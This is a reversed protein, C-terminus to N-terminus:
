NYYNQRFVSAADIDSQTYSKRGLQDMAGAMTMLADASHSNEDHSPEDIIVGASNKKKRYGDLRQLGAKCLTADFKLRNFLMKTSDIAQKKHQVRPIKIFDVGFKAAMQQITLGTGKSASTVDHPAFHKGYIYPKDRMAKIDVEISCLTSEYYDIVRIGDLDMQFFWISTYDTYGLDCATHVPLQKNHAYSGIRKEHRALSMEKGFIQLESSALFAEESTSPYEQFMKDHLSQKKKIYWTKQYGSLSIGHNHQLKEFYAAIEDNVHVDVDMSYSPEKWWPYFFFKYDFPTYPLGDQQYAEWQKSMDYFTGAPGKATSEIFIFGDKPVSEIAGTIIEECKDPSDVSIPGFESIHLKNITDGRMSLGVRMGSGNEFEIESATMRKLPNIAKVEDPLNEYMLKIKKFKKEVEIWTQDIIGNSTNPNWFIDDFLLAEILTSFGLQRCKLIINRYWVNNLLDQQAWNPKFTVLKSSKDVIKYLTQLRLDRNAALRGLTIDDM